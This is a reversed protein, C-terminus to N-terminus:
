NGHAAQYSAGIREPFITIHPKGTAPHLQVDSWVGYVQRILPPTLVAEPPGSAVVQGAQLLYIRDCYLAALNLEHLSALTTVRLSKILELIELQYHIDLHTTPEDLILFRAQQTLARAVLVRQKEGGSLTLFSRHAFDTLGVRALAEDVRQFDEGTDPDFMGKHPTRGMLVMERVSFDFDGTQEQTVVAMQQAAQRASLQWVDAEDLRILGAGPKLIRYITRLLSTKGSGNPGLLGVFESPKVELSVDAVIKRAEISWTVTEVQLKM